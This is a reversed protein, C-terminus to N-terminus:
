LRIEKLELCDKITHILNLSITRAKGKEIKCIWEHSVGVKEALEKQTLKRSVRQKKVLEGFKLIFEKSTDPSLNDIVIM